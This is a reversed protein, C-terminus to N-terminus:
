RGGLYSTVDRAFRRFDDLRGLYSVLRAVEVREYDHVLINRLSAINALRGAFEVDLVGNQGLVVLVERYSNAKPLGRLAIIMEGVDLMCEAALQMYRELSGRDYPDAFDRGRIGDLLKM